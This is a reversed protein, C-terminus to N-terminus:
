RAAAAGTTGRAAALALRALGLALGAAAVGVGARYTEHAPLAERGHTHAYADVVLALARVAAGGLVPMTADRWRPLRAWALAGVAGLALGAYIGAHALLFSAVPESAPHARHWALQREVAVAEVLPGVFALALWASRARPTRTRLAGHVNRRRYREKPTAAANRL